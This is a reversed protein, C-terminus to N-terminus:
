VREFIHNVAMDLFDTLFLNFIINRFSIAVWAVLYVGNVILQNLLRSRNAVVVFLGHAVFQQEEFSDISQLVVDDLLVIFFLRVGFVGTQRLFILM